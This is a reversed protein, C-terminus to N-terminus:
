YQGGDNCAPATGQPARRNHVPLEAPLAFGREALNDEIVISDGDFPDIKGGGGFAGEPDLAHATAYIIIMLIIGDM